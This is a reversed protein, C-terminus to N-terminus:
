DSCLMKRDTLYRSAFVVPRWSEAPQSRQMLVAGLGYSSADASIKMEADPNYLALVAPHIIEQKIHAFAEEQVKSWVWTTKASLLGQIPQALEALNKSFKGLQNVMGM